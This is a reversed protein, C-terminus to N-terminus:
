APITLKKELTKSYLNSFFVVKNRLIVFSFRSKYMNAIITTLKQKLSYNACLRGTYINLTLSDSLSIKTTKLFLILLLKYHKKRQM